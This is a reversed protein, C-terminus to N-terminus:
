GYEGKADEKQLMEGRSAQSAEQLICRGFVVVTRRSTNCLRYDGQVTNQWMCAFMLGHLPVLTADDFPPEIVLQRMQVITFPTHQGESFPQVVSFEPQASFLTTIVGHLESSHLENGKM